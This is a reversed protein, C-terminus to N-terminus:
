CGKRVIFARRLKRRMISRYRHEYRLAWPQHRNRRLTATWVSPMRGRYVLTKGQYIELTM